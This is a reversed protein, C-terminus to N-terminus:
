CRENRQVTTRKLVKYTLYLDQLTNHLTSISIPLDHHIAFQSGSKFSTLYLSPSEAVLNRLDAITATNLLCRCGRLVGPSDVQGEQEYNNLWRQISHDSVRVVEGDGM